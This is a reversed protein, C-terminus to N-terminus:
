PKSFSEALDFGHAVALHQAGVDLTDGFGCDATQSAATTDLTERSKDVFLSATNQFYKKLIDNAVSDGVGLMSAARGDSGHIDDVRELALSAGEVTKSASDL